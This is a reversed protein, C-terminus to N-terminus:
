NKPKSYNECVADALHIAVNTMGMGVPMRFFSLAFGAYFIKPIARIGHEKFALALIQKGTRQHHNNLKMTADIPYTAFTAAQGAIAGAFFAKAYKKVPNLEQKQHLVAEMVQANLNFFPWFLGNRLMIYGCSKFSQTIFEHASMSRFVDSVSRLEPRTLLKQRILTIPGSMVGDIVGAVAYGLFKTVTPTFNFTAIYNIALPGAFYTVSHRPINILATFNYGKWPNAALQLLHHAYSKEPHIVKNIILHDIPITVLPGLVSSFVGRLTSRLVEDNKDHRAATM